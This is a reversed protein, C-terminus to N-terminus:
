TSLLISESVESTKVLQLLLLKAVLPTSYCRLIVEARQLWHSFYAARVDRIANNFSVLLDKLYLLHVNLHTKKWLQEAKRCDRKLCRISGNLWPSSKSVSAPRM